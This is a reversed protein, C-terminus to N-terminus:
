AKWLKCLRTKLFDYGKEGILNVFPVTNYDGVVMALYPQYSFETVYPTNNHACVAPHPIVIYPQEEQFFRSIFADGIVVDYPMREEILKELDEEYHVHADGAEMYEEDMAFFSVVDVDEVGFQERLCVRIMNGTFQETLVCARKGRGITKDEPVEEGPGIVFGTEYPTGFEKELKRVTSLGSVSVAINFSAYRSVAIEQIDAGMGWIHIRQYGQNILVSTLDDAMEQSWGDLPTAGIVNVIKRTGGETVDRNTDQLAFRNMLAEYAMKQGDDYRGLGHTDLGLVPCGAKKEIIRAIARIDTGLVTPIPSSCIAIFGCELDKQAQVTKNIVISDDGVIAEIESMNSHFVNKKKDMWRFEDAYCYNGTCGGQGHLIKLCNMEFLVSFAGSYDAALAPLRKFLRKM